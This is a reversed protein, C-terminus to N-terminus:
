VDPTIGQEECRVMFSRYTNFNEDAMAIREHAIDDFHIVDFGSLRDDPM